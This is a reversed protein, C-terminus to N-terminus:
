IECRSIVPYRLSYTRILSNKNSKITIEWKDTKMLFFIEPDMTYKTKNPYAINPMSDERFKAQNHISVDFNWISM